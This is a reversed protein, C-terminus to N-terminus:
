LGRSRTQIVGGSYRERLSLETDRSISQRDAKTTSMRHAPGWIAKLAQSSDLPDSSVKSAEDRLEYIVLPTPNMEEPYRCIAPAEGIAAGGELMPCSCDSASPRRWVQGLHARGQDWRRHRTRQCVSSPLSVIM